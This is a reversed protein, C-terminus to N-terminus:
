TRVIYMCLCVCVCESVYVLCVSVCVSFVCVCVCVCVCARKYPGTSAHKLRTFFISPVVHAVHSRMIASTGLATSHNTRSARDGPRGREGERERERGREGERKKM